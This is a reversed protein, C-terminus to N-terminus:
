RGSLHRPTGERPLPTPAGSISARPASRGPQTFLRTIPSVGSVHPAPLTQAGAPRAFSLTSAPPAPAPAPPAPVRAPPVPASIPTVINKGPKYFLNNEKWQIPTSGHRALKITLISGNQDAFTVSTKDIQIIQYDGIYDGLFYGKKKIAKKEIKKGGSFVSYNGELIAIQTSESLVIGKVKLDPPPLPPLEPFSSVRPTKRQVAFPVREKRFIAEGSIRSVINGPYTKRETSFEQLKEPAAALSGGDVRSPYEPAM